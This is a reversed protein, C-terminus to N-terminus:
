ARRRRSRAGSGTAQRGPERRRRGTACLASGPIVVRGDVLYRRAFRELNARQRGPEEPIAGRPPIGRLYRWYDDLSDLEVDITVREVAVDVLGGERLVAELAGAAALRFRPPVEGRPWSAGAAIRRAEAGPNRALEDWVSVALRGGPVLVRRIEAAVRAPAAFLMLAFGCTVADFSRDPLAIHEADVIRTEVNDLGRRRARREVVALMAPELDTALVSGGPRVREAIALAPEGTGSALDLVRHGPAV